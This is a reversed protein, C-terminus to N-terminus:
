VNYPESPGKLKRGGCESCSWTNSMACLLWMISWIGGTCITMILHLIHSTGKAEAKVNKDCLKCFSRKYEMSIGGKKIKNLTKGGSGIGPPDVMELDM